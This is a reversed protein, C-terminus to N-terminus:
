TGPQTQASQEGDKNESDTPPSGPQTNGADKRPLPIDSPRGGLVNFLELLVKANPAYELGSVVVRLAEPRKGNSMLFEAWRSYAPWYDPKLQRARGFSENARDPSGLLLEVEGLRTYVEPLMVFNRPVRNTVYKYDTLASGWLAKRTKMPVGARQARNMSIRAWCYHHMHWFGNGMLGVWHAARPSTNSFADGYGFGMTDPCYPPILKMEWEEIDEPKSAQAELSPMLLLLSLALTVSARTLTSRKLAHQIM